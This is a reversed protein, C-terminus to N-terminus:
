IKSKVLKFVKYIDDDLDNLIEYKDINQKRFLVVGSGLFPEVYTIYKKSVYINNFRSIKIKWGNKWYIFKPKIENM